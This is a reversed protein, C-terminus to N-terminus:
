VGRGVSGVIAPGGDPTWACVVCWVKVRQTEHHTQLFFVALFSGRGAPVEERRCGGRHSMASQEWSKGPGLFDALDDTLLFDEDRLVGERDNVGVAVGVPQDKLFLAVLLILGIVLRSSSWRNNAGGLIILLSGAWSAILSTRDINRKVLDRRGLGLVNEVGHIWRHWWAILPLLFILGQNRGVQGFIGVM